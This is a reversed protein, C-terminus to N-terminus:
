IIKLIYEPNAFIEVLDDETVNHAYRQGEFETWQKRYVGVTWKSYWVDIRVYESTGYDRKFRVLCNNPREFDVVFGFQSALDIIGQKGKRQKYPQEMTNKLMHENTSTSANKTTKEGLTPAFLTVRRVHPTSYDHSLKLEMKLLETNHRLTSSLHLSKRTATLVSKQIQSAHVIM